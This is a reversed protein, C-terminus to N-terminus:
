GCKERFDAMDGAPLVTAVFSARMGRAAEMRDGYVMIM